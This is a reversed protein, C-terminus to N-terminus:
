LSFPFSATMEIRADADNSFIDLGQNQTSSIRAKINNTVQQDLYTVIQSDNFSYEAGSSLGLEKFEKRTIM